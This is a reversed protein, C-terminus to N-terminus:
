WKIIGLGSLQYMKLLTQKVFEHSQQITLIVDPRQLRQCTNKNIATQM